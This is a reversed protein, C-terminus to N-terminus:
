PSNIKLKWAVFWKNGYLIHLLKFRLNASTCVEVCHPHSKSKGDRCKAM